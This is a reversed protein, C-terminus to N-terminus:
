FAGRRSLRPSVFEARERPSLEPPASLRRLSKLDERAPSPPQVDADDAAGSTVGPVLTRRRLASLMSSASHARANFERLNSESLEIQESHTLLM